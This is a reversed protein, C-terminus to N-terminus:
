LVIRRHFNVIFDIVLFRKYDEMGELSPVSNQLAEWV